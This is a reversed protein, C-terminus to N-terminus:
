LGSKEVPSDVADSGALISRPFPIEPFLCGENVRAGESLISFM